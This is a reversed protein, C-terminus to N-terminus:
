SPSQMLMQRDRQWIGLGMVMSIAGQWLCFGLLMSFDSDHTFPIAAIGGILAGLFIYLFPFNRFLLWALLCLLAGGVVGAKLISSERPSGVITMALQWIGMSGLVLAPIKLFLIKTRPQFILFFIAMALGYVIGPTIYRSTDLTFYSVVGSAIGLLVFIFTKKM